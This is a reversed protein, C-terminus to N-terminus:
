RYCWTIFAGQSQPSSTSYQASSQHVSELLAAIEFHNLRDWTWPLRQNDMSSRYNSYRVNLSELAQLPLPEDAPTDKQPEVYYSDPDLAAADVEDSSVPERFYNFAPRYSPRPGTPTYSPRSLIVIDPDAETPLGGPHQEISGRNPPSKRFSINRLIAAM